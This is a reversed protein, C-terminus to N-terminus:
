APLPVEGRQQQLFRQGGIGVAVKGDTHIDVPQLRIAVVVVAEEPGTIGCGTGPAGARCGFRTLRDAYVQGEGAALTILLGVEAAPCAHQLLIALRGFLFADVEDQVETVEDVFAAPVVAFRRCGM